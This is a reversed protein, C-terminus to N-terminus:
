APLAVHRLFFQRAGSTRSTAAPRAGPSTPSATACRWRRRCRRARGSAPRWRRRTARTSGSCRRRAHRPLLRAGPHGALIAALRGVAHGHVHQRRPRHHRFARHRRPGRRARSCTARAVPMSPATRRSSRGTTMPGSAGVTPEGAGTAGVAARARPSALTSRRATARSRARASSWRPRPRRRAQAARRQLGGVAADGDARRRIEPRRLLGRPRRYALKACEVWPHIFDPGAPDLSTSTSARSCRWSQLPVPGQTWAGRKLVPLPRLRYHSRSRSADAALEGHGPRHARRSAAPRAADMVENRAASATSRRPSSARAGPARAREIEKERGGGGAEAEKLIREYTEAHTTNTFLTARRRCRAARCISRPRPRGTSASSSSSPASPPAPASSWRIATARM